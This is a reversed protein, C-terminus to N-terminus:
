KLKDRSVVDHCWGYGTGIQVDGGGALGKVKFHGGRLGGHDQVQRSRLTFHEGISGDGDFSSDDAAVDLVWPCELSLVEPNTVEM